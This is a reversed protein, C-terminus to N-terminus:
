RRLEIRKRGYLCHDLSYRGPGLHTTGRKTARDRGAHKFDSAIVRMLDTVLEIAYRHRLRSM